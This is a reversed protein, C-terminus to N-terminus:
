GDRREEEAEAAAREAAHNPVRVKFAGTGMPDRQADEGAFCVTRAFPCETPYSCARRSMPFLVNLLHRKEGEDAASAVQAVAEAARTEQAEVQEIWDRLQDDSRYVTLPAPFVADLPHEPTYGQTQAESKWGLLRPEMGTTSDWASMTETSADLMDIWEKIPMGEWVAKPRWNKYYLKSSGGDDKSFEYSWCWAGEPGQYARILHSRQAWVNIGFRSSLEKDAYRPQKLLYEYRIGLIRPPAPLSSLYRRMALPVEDNGILFKGTREPNWHDRVAAWWEGLRREVEVGESLGQMDHEADRAKRVDWTAATKYSLLYLSNDTRSRLLADPRSMFRIAYRHETEHETHTDKDRCRGCEFVDALEWDGEREVELVEFEELLPRLRRRAYARVMGEVLAAQERWLWEDYEAAANRQQTHLAVLSPDGAELGLDAATAALQAPLSELSPTAQAALEATDLAIAKQYQGFDALARKVATDEDDGKLLHELGVHVSKGVCLALPEKAPVLGLGAEHYSLFRLRNCRQYSEIRSRDTYIVQLINSM